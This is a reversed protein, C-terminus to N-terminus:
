FENGSSAGGAGAGQIGQLAAEIPSQGGTSGLDGPAGAGEPAGEPNLSQPPAIDRSMFRTVDKVSFYQSIEEIFETYDIKPVSTPDQFFQAQEIALKQIQGVQALFQLSIDRKEDKTLPLLSDDDINLGIKGQYDKPMVADVKLEGEKPYRVFEAEDQFQALNSLWINGIVLMSQKFNDRMFGIKETAAETILSIGKATGATKDTSSDPVGSIYQPVTAVEIASQLENMVTSIQGPNPEPFKYQKPAEGTYTIEGGPEVVFDNTLTGDEYMIMSDLSVNLNDMYHNMLDNVGSQLTANNEFLSEGWPSFSKKRIYFPVIPYHKHWYRKGKKRIEVWNDKGKGEAYTTMYVGDARREYCEYVTATKVTKDHAQSQQNSVKNRSQNYTEYDSYKPKDDLKNLDYNSNGKLEEFDKFYRVIIYSAKGWSPSNPSVFVNFFNLPELVNCGYEYSTVKDKDVNKPLGDDDMEKEYIKEKKVEWSAKGWGTGAVVADILIDSVKFKMPEDPTEVYDKRLKADLRNQRERVDEPVTFGTEDLVYEEIETRFYPTVGSLRSILDWAKSALIPIYLKSRWPAMNSSNQVSYMIDYYKSVRNFLKQQEDEAKTFREKWTTSKKDM